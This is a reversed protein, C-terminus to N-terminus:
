RPEEILANRHAYSAAEARNAVGAKAFINSVHRAVTNMSIVLEDAIQQNSKGDAILRLVEIERKSLKEAVVPTATGVSTHFAKDTDLGNTALFEEIVPIAPPLEGDTRYLSSHIGQTDFLVLRSSPVLSAIEKAEAEVPVTRGRTAMVLTPVAIHPLLHRIGEDPREIEALFDEVTVAERLRLVELEPADFGFNRAATEIFLDWSTRAVEAYLRITEAAPGSTPNWLLLSAVRGPNQVTYRVARDGRGIGAFLIFRELQLRDVVAEIDRVADDNSLSPPLGRQSMGTGREDYRVLYFRQSLSKYLLSRAPMRRTVHLHSLPEPVFVLPRGAGSVEFAISYGDSTTVYQVAPPVDM